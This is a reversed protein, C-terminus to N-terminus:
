DAWWAEMVCNYVGNQLSYVQYWGSGNGSTYTIFEPEGDRNLDCIYFLEVISFSDWDWFEESLKLNQEVGDIAMRVFIVRGKGAPKYDNDAIIFYFTDLSYNTDISYVERVTLELDPYGGEECVENVWSQFVPNGPHEKNAFWFDLYEDGSLALYDLWRWQPDNYRDANEMVIGDNGLPLVTKTGVSTIRDSNGFYVNYLSKEPLMPYLSEADIWKEGDWAAVLLENIVITEYDFYSITEELEDPPTRATDSISQRENDDSSTGISPEGLSVNNSCACLLFTILVFTFFSETKEVAKQSIFRMNGEWTSAIGGALWGTTSEM